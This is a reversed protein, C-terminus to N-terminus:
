GFCLMMGGEGWRGRRKERGKEGGGTKAYAHHFGICTKAQICMMRDKGLSRSFGRHADQTGSVVSWQGSVVTGSECIMDEGGRRGPGNMGWDLNM